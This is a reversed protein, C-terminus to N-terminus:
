PNAKAIAQPVNQYKCYEGFGHIEEAFERTPAHNLSMPRSGNQLIMSVLIKFIITFELYSGPDFSWSLVDKLGEHRPLYFYDITLM